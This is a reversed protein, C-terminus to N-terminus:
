PPRPIHLNCNKIFFNLFFLKGATFKKCNKNMLVRSGSGNLSEISFAPDPDPILSDPDSVNNNPCYFSIRGKAEKLGGTM